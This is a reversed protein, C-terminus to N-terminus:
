IEAVFFRGHAYGSLGLEAVAARVGPYYEEGFDDFVVVADAALAPLWRSM